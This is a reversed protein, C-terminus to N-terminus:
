RKKRPRPAKGSENARGVPKSISANFEKRKVLYRKKLEKVRKILNDFGIENLFVLRAVPGTLNADDVDDGVKGSKQMAVPLDKFVGTGISTGGMGLIYSTTIPKKTTKPQKKKM